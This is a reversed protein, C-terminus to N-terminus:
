AFQVDKRQIKQIYGDITMIYVFKETVKYVNGYYVSSSCDFFFRVKDNVQFM